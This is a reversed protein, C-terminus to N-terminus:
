SEPETKLLKWYHQYIPLADGVDVQIEGKSFVDPPAFVTTNNIIEAPLLAKAAINPTAYGVEECIKKAVEPRLLFEMFKYAGKVNAANKPIVMSDMWIIAGESPYIFKIAPNEEFALYAEGNWLSGVPTKGSLLIKRQSESSFLHINPMLDLLKAYAAVIESENRTNGSYGLVRLAMAFVERMDDTLMVKGKFKPKWFDSFSTLTAPNMMESNVGIGTTGWLYPISYKNKPDYPSNLLMPDINKIGPVKKKNIKRLLGERHMKDLYHTSPFILDYKKKKDKIEAYLEENSEFTTYIVDIGTEEEFQAILEDPLYETWNHVYLKEGAWLSGAALFCFILVLGLIKDYIKM